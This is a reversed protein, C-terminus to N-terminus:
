RGVSLLVQNKANVDVKEEEVLHRVREYDGVECM